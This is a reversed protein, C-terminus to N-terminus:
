KALGNSKLVADDLAQQPTMQGSLVSSLNVQVIKSWESYKAFVPRYHMYQFQPYMDALYPYKSLLEKDEYVNKLTPLIGSNTMGNIQVQPDILMEMFKWSWYPSVTTSLMCIGGGGTVSSSPESINATAPINTIAIDGVVKSDQPSNCLDWAFSWNMNFATDGALFPDLDTRDNYTISAPDAIGNKLSDNIATLAKVANPSNFVFKNDKDMWEAGYAYLWSTMDCIIGEAQMAGYSIGYKILGKSQLDKSMAFLEDWTAPPKSYGGKALISKNYFMWKGNNCYPLGWTKGNWVMQNICADIMSSRVDNSIYEDLPLIIGASAFEAPWVTDLYAMDVKSGGLVSTTIKDHTNDYAESIVNIKVGYKQEFVKGLDEFFTKFDTSTIITLSEPKEPESPQESQSPSTNAQTAQNSTTTSSTANIGTSNQCGILLCTVMLLSLVLMLVKRM